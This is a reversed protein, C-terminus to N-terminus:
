LSTVPVSHSGIFIRYAFMRLIHAQAVHKVIETIHMIVKKSQFLPIVTDIPFIGTTKAQLRMQRLQKLAGFFVPCPYRTIRKVFHYFAQVKSPFLEKIIEFFTLTASTDTGRLEFLSFFIARRLKRIGVFKFCPTDADRKSYPIRFGLLEIFVIFTVEQEVLMAVRLPVDLIDLDTAVANSREVKVDHCIVSGFFNHGSCTFAYPYVETHVGIQCETIALLNLMRLRQLLGQIFESCEVLGYGSLLLTRTVPPTSDALECPKVALDGVLASIPMIFARGVQTPPKIRNDGLRQIKVCHFTEPPAFDRVKGKVLKNLYQLEFTEFM